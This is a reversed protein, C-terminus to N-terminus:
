SLEENAKITAALIRRVMRLTNDHGDAFGSDYADSFGKLMEDIAEIRRQRSDPAPPYLMDSRYQRLLEIITM